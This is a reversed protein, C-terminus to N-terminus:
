EDVPNEALHLAAGALQLLAYRREQKYCALAEFTLSLLFGDVTHERGYHRGWAAARDDHGRRRSPATDKTPMPGLHSVAERMEALLAEMPDPKRAPAKKRPTPKAKPTEATETNENEIDAM